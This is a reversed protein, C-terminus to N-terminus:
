DWGPCSDQLGSRRYEVSDIWFPLDYFMPSGGPFTFATASFQLKRLGVFNLEALMGVSFETVSGGTGPFAIFQRTMQAVQNGCKDFGKMVFEFWFAEFVTDIEDLGLRMSILDFDFNGKSTLSQREDLLLSDTPRGSMVFDFTGFPGNEGTSGYLLNRSGDAVLAESSNAAFLSAAKVIWPSKEEYASEPYHLRFDGYTVPADIAGEGCSTDIDDFTLTRIGNQCNDSLGPYHPREFELGDIIIGAQSSDEFFAQFRVTVTDPFSGSTTATANVKFMEEGAPIVISQSSSSLSASLFMLQLSASQSPAVTPQSINFITVYFEHITFSATQESSFSIGNGTGSLANPGSSRKSGYANNGPSRVVNAAPSFNFGKYHAPM